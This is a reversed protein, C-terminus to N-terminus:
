CIKDRVIREKKERERERVRDKRTHSYLLLYHTSMPRGTGLGSGSAHLLPNCYLKFFFFFHIVEALSWISLTYCPSLISEWQHDHTSTNLLSRM